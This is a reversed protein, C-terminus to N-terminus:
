RWHDLEVISDLTPENAAWRVVIVQAMGNPRVYVGGIWWRGDSCAYNAREDGIVFTVGGALQV